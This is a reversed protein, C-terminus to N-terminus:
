HLQGIASIIILIIMILGIGYAIFGVIKSWVLSSASPATTELTELKGQELMRQYELPREHRFEKESVRGTFIVHDLPFKDPRLHTNFFHITFIFGAALLAEDSHLIISVNFAWGPLFRAFFEPFWLTLGSFGIIGVGWFVALYDFKEWYTFRDFQPRERLGLFWMVHGTVDELDKIWPVMSNPGLLWKFFPEERVKLIYYIAFILHLVFYMFTIVGFVRHLYGAMEIGGLVGALVQAWGSTYYKLPMGTLVLGLFSVMILVHLFRHYYNFRLYWREAQGGQEMHAYETM